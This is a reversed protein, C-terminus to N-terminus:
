DFNGWRLELNGDLAASRLRKAFSRSVVMEKPDFKVRQPAYGAFAGAEPLDTDPWQADPQILLEPRARREKWVEILRSCCKEILASISEYIGEMTTQAEETLVYGFRAGRLADVEGRGPERSLLLISDVLVKRTTAGVWLAIGTPRQMWPSLHRGRHVLMNRYDLAWKLWGDPGSNKVLESLFRSFDAQLKAGDHATGGIKALKRQADNLDGRLLNTPLALVGIISSGLCDLASGVARFFGAMHVRALEHPLHSAANEQRKLDHKAGTLGVTIQSQTQRSSQDFLDLAELLHLRAEVLNTEITATALHLQDSILIRRKTPVRGVWWGVGFSGEDLDDLICLALTHASPVRVGLAESLQENPSRADDPAFPTGLKELDSARMTPGTEM